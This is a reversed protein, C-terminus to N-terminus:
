QPQSTASKMAAMQEQVAAMAAKFDAPTSVRQGGIKFGGPLELQLGTETQHVKALSMVNVVGGITDIWKTIETVLVKLYETQTRQIEPLERLVAPLERLDASPQQGFQADKLSFTSPQTDTRGTFDLSGISAQCDSTVSLSPPNFLGPGKVHVGPSTGAMQGGWHNMSCGCLLALVLSAAVIDMERTRM